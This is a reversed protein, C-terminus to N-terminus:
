TAGIEVGFFFSPENGGFVAIFYKSGFLRENLVEFTGLLGLHKSEIEVVIDVM